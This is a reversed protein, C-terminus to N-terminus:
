KSGSAVNSDWSTNKMSEIMKDYKYDLCKEGETKLLMSNVAALRSVPAGITTNTM